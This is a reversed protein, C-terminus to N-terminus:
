GSIFAPRELVPLSYKRPALVCGHWTQGGGLTQMGTHGVVEGAIVLSSKRMREVLAPRCSMKLLIRFSAFVRTTSPLGRSVRAARSKPENGTRPRVMSELLEM